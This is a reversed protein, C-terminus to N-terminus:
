TLRGHREERYIQALQHAREVEDRAADLALVHEFKEHRDRLVQSVAHGATLRTRASARETRLESVRASLEQAAELLLEADAEAQGLAEEAAAAERSSDEADRRLVREAAADGKRSAELARTRAEEARRTGRDRDRRLDGRLALLTAASRRVQAGQRDLDEILKDYTALPNDPKPEPKKRRWFRFEVRALRGL